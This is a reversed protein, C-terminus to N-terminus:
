LNDLPAYPDEEAADDEPSFGTAHHARVRRLLRLAEAPDPACLWSQGVLRASAKTNKRGELERGALHLLGPGQIRVLRAYYLPRVLDQGGPRDRLHAENRPGYSDLPSPGFELWGQVSDLLAPDTSALRHGYARM